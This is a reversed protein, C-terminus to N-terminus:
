LNSMSCKSQSVMGVCWGGMSGAVLVMPTVVVVVMWGSIGVFERNPCQVKYGGSRSGGLITGGPRFGTLPGLVGNGWLFGRYTLRVVVPFGSCGGLGGVGVEDVELRSTGLRNVGDEGDVPPYNGLWGWGSWGGGIKGVMWFRAGGGWGADGGGVRSVDFLLTLYIILSKYWGYHSLIQNSEFQFCYYM